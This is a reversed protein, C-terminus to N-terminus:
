RGCSHRDSAILVILARGCVGAKGTKDTLGGTITSTLGHMFHDVSRSADGGVITRLTVAHPQDVKNRFGPMVDRLNKPVIEIRLAHYIVTALVPIILEYVPDEGETVRDTFCIPSRHM